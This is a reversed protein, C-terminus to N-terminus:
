NHISLIAKLPLRKDTARFLVEDTLFLLDEICYMIRKCPCRRILIIINRFKILACQKM